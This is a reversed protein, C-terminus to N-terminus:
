LPRRSSFCSQEIWLVVLHRPQGVLLRVVGGNEASTLKICVARSGESSPKELTHAINVTNGSGFM